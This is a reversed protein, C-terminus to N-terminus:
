SLLESSSVADTADSSDRCDIVLLLLDEDDRTDAAPPRLRDTPPPVSARLSVFVGLYALM